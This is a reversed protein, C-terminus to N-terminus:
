RRGALRRLATRLMGFAVDPRGADVLDLALDRRYADLLPPLCGACRRGRHGDMTVTNQSGCGTCGTSAM